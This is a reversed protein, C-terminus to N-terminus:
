AGTVTERRTRKQLAAPLEARPKLALRKSQRVAPRGLKLTERWLDRDAAMQPWIERDINFQDLAKCISRGYTMAPAGNPRKSPIWSSLMKRPLRKSYDMRSVHGLWTLQRRNIYYDIMNIGMEQGLAQTSIHERWTHARTVRSM